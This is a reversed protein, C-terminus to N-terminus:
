GALLTKQVGKDSVTHLYRAVATEIGDNFGESAIIAPIESRTIGIDALARDNLNVLDRMTRATALAGDIRAFFSWIGRFLSAFAQGMAEAQAAQARTEFVVAGSGGTVAFDPLVPFKIQANLRNSM